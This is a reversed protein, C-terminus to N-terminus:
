TPGSKCQYDKGLSPGRWMDIAIRLVEGIYDLDVDTVHKVIQKQAVHSQYPYVM